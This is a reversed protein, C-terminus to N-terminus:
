FTTRSILHVAHPRAHPATARSASWLSSQSFIATGCTEGVGGLMGIVGVPVRLPHLRVHSYCARYNARESKMVESRELYVCNSDHVYMCMYVLLNQLFILPFLISLLFRNLFFLSWSILSYTSIVPSLSIRKRTKRQKIRLELLQCRFDCDLHFCVLM